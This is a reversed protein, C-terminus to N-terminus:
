LMFGLHPPAVSYEGFFQIQLDQRKELVLVLVLVLLIKLEV